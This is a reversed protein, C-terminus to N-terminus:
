FQLLNKVARPPEWPRYLKWGGSRVMSASALRERLAFVTDKSFVTMLLFWTVMKMKERASAHSWESRIVTRAEGFKKEMCLAIALRRRLWHDNREFEKEYGAFAPQERFMGSVKIRERYLQEENRTVSGASIRYVVDVRDVHEFMVGDMAMRIWCEVDEVHSPRFPYRRVLDAPFLFSHIPIIFDVNWRFLFSRVADADPIRAPLTRFFSGDQALLAYECYLVHNPSHSSLRAVADKLKDGLLLDDADLFQIFSGRAAEVGRNRAAAAGHHKQVVIRFRSDRACFDEAIQASGDTSGDDVIICEWQELSQWRLSELAQALSPAANYCPAIVSVLPATM